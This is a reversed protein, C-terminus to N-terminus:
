KEVDTFDTRPLVFIALLSFVCLAIGLCILLLSALRMFQTSKLSLSDAAPGVSSTVRLHVLAPFIFSLFACLVAGNVATVSAVNVFVIGGIVTLSVGVITFGLEFKASVANGILGSRVLLNVCAERLTIFELPYSFTTSFAMGLWAFMVRTGGGYNKLVDGQVALGFLTFGCFGVVIFTLLAVSFACLVLTAFRPLTNDQLEAYFRPANYHAMFSSSMLAMAQFLDMRLPFMNQVVSEVPAAFGGRSVCDSVLLAFGYCTAALGVVSSFRLPALNKLLSLPVLFFTAIIVLVVARSQHVSEVSMLGLGTMAKTLFDAILVTFSVSALGCQAFVALDAVWATEHGFTKSWLGGISSAGVIRSCWGLLFFTYANLVGFSIIGLAYPLVGAGRMAFPLSLMGAGIINKSLNLVATPLTSKEGIQATKMNKTEGEATFYAAVIIAIVFTLTTAMLSSALALQGPSASVNARQFAALGSRRGSHAIFSAFSVQEIEASSSAHPLSSLNASLEQRQPQHQLAGAGLIFCSLVNSALRGM